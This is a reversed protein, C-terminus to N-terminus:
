RKEMFENIVQQFDTITKDAVQEIEEVSHNNKDVIGYTIFRASKATEIAHLSDEMVVIDGPHIGMRQACMIYIEPDRKSKGVESVTLVFQMKDYIGLRKLAGEAYWKETLTAVCMPIKYKEFMEIMELANPKLELEYMYKEYLQVNWEEVIEQPTLPLNYQEAIIEAAQELSKSLMMESVQPKYEKGYRELFDRDLDQWMKMSDLITGDLDFIVGLM